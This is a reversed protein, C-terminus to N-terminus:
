DLSKTELTYWKGPTAPNTPWKSKVCEAYSDEFDDPNIVKPYVHFCTMRGTYHPLSDDFGAGLRITGPVAVNFKVDGATAAVDGDDFFLRIQKKSIDSSIGVDYWGDAEGDFGHAMSVSQYLYSRNYMEAYLKSTDYYLRFETYQEAGLTATPDVIYHFITGGVFKTPYFLVTFGFDDFTTSPQPIYIDLKSSSSGSFLVSQYNLNEHSTSMTFSAGCKSVDTSVNNVIELGLNGPVLPWNYIPKTYASNVFIVQIGSIFIIILGCSKLETM